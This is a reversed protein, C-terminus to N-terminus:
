LHCVFRWDDDTLGIQFWSEAGHEDLPRACAFCKGQAVPDSSQIANNQSCVPCPLFTDDKPVVQEYKTRCNPDGCTARALKVTV